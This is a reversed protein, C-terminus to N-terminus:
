FSSLFFFPFSPLFLPILSSLGIIIFRGLVLVQGLETTLLYGVAVSVKNPRNLVHTEALSPDFWASMDKRM